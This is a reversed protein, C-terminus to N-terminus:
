GNLLGTFNTLMTTPVCSPLRSTWQGNQCRPGADGLLKYLGLERCRVKLRAGHPFSWDDKQFVYCIITLTLNLETVHVNTPTRNISIYAFTLNYNEFIM